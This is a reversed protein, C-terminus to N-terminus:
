LRVSKVYLTYVEGCCLVSQPLTTHRHTFGLSITYTTDCKPCKFRVSNRAADLVIILRGLSKGILAGVVYAALLVSGGIIFPNV